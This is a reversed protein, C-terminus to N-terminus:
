GDLDDFVHGASYQVRNGEYLAERIADEDRNVAVSMTSMDPLDVGMKYFAKAVNEILKTNEADSTTVSMGRVYCADTMSSTKLAIDGAKTLAHNWGKTGLADDVEALDARVAATFQLMTRNTKDVIGTARHPIFILRIGQSPLQSILVRTKGNFEKVTGADQQKSQVTIYEDIVLYLIPLKIGKKRLAWIDDCKNDAFLKKRRPAENNILDDMIALINDDNHLGCVHPMLALTKFLNSEKPDVIIFQVDEPTNFMMLSMLVSLVYWSKGSRPKGTIMMTDFPKADTTIVNGTETIGAVIPLPNGENEYFERVQQKKFVDGFTIVATEGREININYYNGIIKTDVNAYVINGSEDPWNFWLRFENNIETVKSVKQIRKIKLEYSFFTEYVEDLQLNIEEMPKNLLNSFANRSITKFDAFEPSDNDIRKRYSFDPTNLPLFNLFTQVLLKRNIISNDRVNSLAADYDRTGDSRMSSPLDPIEYSNSNDEPVSYSQFSNSDENSDDGSDDSPGFLDAMIDGLEDEYDGSSDDEFGETDSIDSLSSLETECAGNTQSISVASIGIAIM